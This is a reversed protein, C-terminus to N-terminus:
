ILEPLAGGGSRERGGRRGRHAGCGGDSCPGQPPLPHRVAQRDGSAPLLLLRPVQPHTRPDTPPLPLLVLVASLISPSPTHCFPPHGIATGHGRSSASGRLLTAQVALLQLGLAPAGAEGHATIHPFPAPKHCCFWVGKLRGVCRAGAQADYQIGCWWPRGASAAACM